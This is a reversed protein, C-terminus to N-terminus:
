YRKASCGCRINIDKACHRMVCRLRLCCDIILWLILTHPDLLQHYIVDNISVMIVVGFIFFSLLKICFYDIQQTTSLFKFFFCKLTTQVQLFDVSSYYISICTSPHSTHKTQTKRKNNNSKNWETERYVM